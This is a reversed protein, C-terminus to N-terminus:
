ANEILGRFYKQAIRIQDEIYDNYGLVKGNQFPMHCFEYNIYGDYGIEKLASFVDEFDVKGVGFPMLHQDTAGQNDAIHLAKLHKGAKRIFAGQSCAKTLNLHGTDLCIGLHEDGLQEIYWLLEEVRYHVSYKYNGDSLPGSGNTLNELCITIGDDKVHDALIRIAQVNRDFIEEFNLGDIGLQCHLVSAVASLFGGHHAVPDIRIDFAAQIGANGSNQHKGPFGSRLDQCVGLFFGM